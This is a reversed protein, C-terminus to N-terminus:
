WTEAEKILEKIILVIDNKIQEVTVQDRAYPIHIFVSKRNYEYLTKYYIFECLYRGANENTQICLKSEYFSEKKCFGNPCM